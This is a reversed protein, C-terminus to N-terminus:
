RHRTLWATLGALPAPAIPRFNDDIPSAALGLTHGLGPYLLLTHDPNATLAADLQRAGRPPVNADNAGQLILVPLRLRLAQATVTPLAYGRGYIRDPGHPGFAIDLIASLRPLFETDIDIAGDHNTDLRPNIALPGTTQRPDALYFAISKAVRGGDGVEAQALTRNTIRGQPTFLRLYPLGVATIQYRFTDRWSYALPGQVILGALEPHRVALAAAVTSGESWGYLFIRQHDVHPDTEAAQLAREADRVMVQLTLKGYYSQYDIRTASTVYHKNYRLVAFGRPTLYRAIDLFIHSLPPTGPRAGIDANMDEPSSGPILIVTPSGAAAGAPYTLAARSQFDGFNLRLMERRVAALGGGAQAPRVPAAVLAVVALAGIWAYRRVHGLRTM